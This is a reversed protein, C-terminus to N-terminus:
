GGGGFSSAYYAVLEDWAQGENWRLQVADLPDTNIRVPPEPFETQTGLELRCPLALRAAAGGTVLSLVLVILFWVRLSSPEM